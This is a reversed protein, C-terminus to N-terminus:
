GTKPASLDGATGGNVSNSVMKLIVDESVVPIGLEKCKALKSPGAEGHDTVLHTVKATVSKSVKGGHEKVYEEMDSREFSDLTGSVVICVNVLADESGKPHDKKGINPAKVNSNRM